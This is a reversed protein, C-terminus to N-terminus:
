KDKRAGAHPLHGPFTAIAVAASIFILGLTEGWTPVQRLMVLGVLLSLAPLLSNLLAFTAPALHRMMVQDLVYPVVSSLVGVVVMMGLWKANTFLDPLGPAAIPITLIAAIATGIALQDIGSGSTALKRGLWMYGAWLWGAIIALGVGLAVGDAKLDVGIWSILFVGTLALVIGLRIRWGRGTTAALVVPGLFELAVATGLPILDIAYYFLFNMGVLVVGFIAPRWLDKITRGHWPRRWALLVVAATAVRGWAVTGIPLVAFLLVAIGAGVYSVTGSVFILLPAFASRDAPRAADPSPQSM